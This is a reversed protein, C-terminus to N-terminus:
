EALEGPPAVFAEADVGDGALGGGAGEINRPHDEIGGFGLADPAPGGGRGDRGEEFFDGGVGFGM